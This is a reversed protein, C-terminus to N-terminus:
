QNTNKSQIKLFTSKGGRVVNLNYEKKKEGVIIYHLSM